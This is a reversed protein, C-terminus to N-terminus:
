QDTVPGTEISLEIHIARKAGLHTDGHVCSGLCRGTTKGATGPVM